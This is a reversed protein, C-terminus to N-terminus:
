RFTSHRDQGTAARYAAFGTYTRGHWGFRAKSAPVGAAAFRNHDSRIRAGSTSRAMTGYVAHASNTATITNRLFTDDHAHYQILVEPSGDNLRNNGRLVNDTFRNDYSAGTQVDGCDEHGDCYGGTTIGTFLSGTIRNHDVTVHSANGRGNEAAVEVGIDNGTVVNHHIRIRTGGDVYVGDACNCWGGDESYSPNGKSRIGSVRNHAIVGNRARNKETYRYKGPLTPEFGIADIGINDNSFIRNGSVSWGDVNGNVVVTESAGLRLHDVTNGDIRLGTIPHHPDDGYAAIGHANIDFSGLTGNDNGLHHVHDGLIRVQRDFGHVYVGIPMADIDKTRYATVELGRVTVSTSNAIDIMASRGKPPTLGAGSLLVHERRYPEVTIGHVGHLTFRQHYVGRRLQVSGGSRLRAVAADVTALPHAADGTAADSGHVAVVITRPAATAPAALPGAAAVAALLLGGAARVVSRARPRHASSRSGPASGRLVRMMTAM